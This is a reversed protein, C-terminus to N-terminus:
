QLGQPLGMLDALGNGFPNNGTVAQQIGTMMKGYCGKQFPSTPVVGTEAGLVSFVHLTGTLGGKIGFYTNDKLTVSYPTYSLYLNCQAEDQDNSPILTACGQDDTGRMPEIWGCWAAETAPVLGGSGPKFYAQPEFIHPVVGRYEFGLLDTIHTVAGPDPYGFLGAVDPGTPFQSNSDSDVLPQKPYNDMALLNFNSRLQNTEQLHRVMYAVATNDVFGGDALRVAGAAALKKADTDDLTGKYKLMGSGFEFAPAFNALLAAVAPWYGSREINPIDIFGGGAASSSAAVDLIKASNFNAKSSLTFVKEADAGLQGEKGDEWSGYQFTIDGGPLFTQDNNWPASPPVTFMVPAAGPVPFDAGQYGQATNINSFDVNHNLAPSDTLISSAFVLTKSKAWPQRELTIPNDRAIRAMEQWSKLEFDAGFVVRNALRHWHFDGGTLLFRLFSDAGEWKAVCHQRGPENFPYLIKCLAEVEATPDLSSIVKYAQGFYGDDSTFASIGDAQNLADRFTPTYAAQSLFWSGGSNSSIVGVNKTVECMGIQTGSPASNRMRDMLSMMVGSAGAHAHYGGGSFSMHVNGTGTPCDEASSSGAAFVSMAAFGAIAGIVTHHLKM